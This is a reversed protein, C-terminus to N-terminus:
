SPQDTSTSTSQHQRLIPATTRIPCSPRAGSLPRRQMRRRNQFSTTAAKTTPSLDLPCRSSMLTRKTLCTPRVVSHMTALRLHSPQWMTVKKCNSPAGATQKTGLCYANITTPQKSADRRHHQNANEVINTNQSNRTKRNNHKRGLNHASFVFKEM